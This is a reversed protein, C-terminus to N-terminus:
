TSINWKVLKLRDSVLIITKLMEDSDPFEGFVLNRFINIYINKIQKWVLIPSSFLLASAPHSTLWLNNKFNNLDEKAVKNLMIEFEQNEFFQRLDDNQLLFHIDYIHRIKNGLDNIANSTRSFRVLSIIKECLTREPNLVLVDFPMLGYEVPINNQHNIMMEYILSHVKSTAHPESSGLWTTELIIKDRVQGFIGSFVQPYSHATKRIMGVKNTIGILQVEPLTESILKSLSRIKTKLKNPTEDKKRIVVVDIDESFREILNFCKFLATGGKFVVEDKYESAFIRHLVYTIWYDKEVYIEPLKKQQSTAVIADKFLEINEHLKM